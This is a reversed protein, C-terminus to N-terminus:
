EWRCHDGGALLLGSPQLSCSGPGEWLHSMAVTSNGGRRGLAPAVLLFPMCVGDLLKKRSRSHETPQQPCVCGLGSTCMVLAGPTSVSAEGAVSGPCGLTARATGTSCSGPLSFPFSPEGQEQCTRACLNSGREEGAVSSVAALPVWPRLQWSSHLLHSEPLMERSLDWPLVVFLM